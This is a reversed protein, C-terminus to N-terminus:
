QDGTSDAHYRKGGNGTKGTTYESLFEKDKLYRYLTEESLGCQRSAERISPANILAAIAKEKNSQKAM